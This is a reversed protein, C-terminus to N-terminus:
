VGGGWWGGGAVGFSVKRFDVATAQHGELNAARILDGVHWGNGASFMAIRM